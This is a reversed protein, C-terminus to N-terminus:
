DDALRSLLLKWGATGHLGDLVDDAFLRDGHLELFKPSFAAVYDKPYPRMPHRAVQVKQWPTLNAYIGRRTEDIKQQMTAIESSIDTDAGESASRVDELKSELEVIPKEFPLAYSNM